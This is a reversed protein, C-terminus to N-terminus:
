WRIPYKPDSIISGDSTNPWLAMDLRRALYKSKESPVYLEVFTPTSRLGTLGHPHNTRPYKSENIAPFVWDGILKM